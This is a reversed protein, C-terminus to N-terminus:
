LLFMMECRMKIILTIEHIAENCLYCVSVIDPAEMFNLLLIM